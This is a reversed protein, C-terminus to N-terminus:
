IGAKTRWDAIQAIHERYHGYGTTELLRNITNPKGDEKVGYRDGPVSQAARVFNMHTQRWKALVTQPSIAHLAGSFGANWEDGNSYDVGEPVPREGRAIRDLAPIMEDEWGLVHAVIDRVDWGDLFPLAFQQEDLGEIATQFNRYEDDLTKLTTDKDTM